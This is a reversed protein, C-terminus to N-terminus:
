KVASKEKQKSRLITGESLFQLRGCHEVLWDRFINYWTKEMQRFKNDYNKVNIKRNQHKYIKKKNVIGEIVIEM